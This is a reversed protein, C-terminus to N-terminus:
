KPRHGEDDATHDKPEHPGPGPNYVHKGCIYKECGPCYDDGTCKYGCLECTNEMTSRRKVENEWDDPPPIAVGERRLRERLAVLARERAEFHEASENPQLVLEVMLRTLVKSEPWSAMYRAFYKGREGPGTLDYEDRV